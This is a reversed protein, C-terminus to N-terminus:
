LTSNSTIDGRAGLSYTTGGNPHRFKATCIVAEEGSLWPIYVCFGEIPKMGNYNPPLKEDMSWEIDPSDMVSNVFERYYDKADSKALADRGRTQYRIFQPVAIAAILGIIVIAVLLEIVTFGKNSRVNSPSTSDKQHKKIDRM